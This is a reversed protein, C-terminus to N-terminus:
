ALSFYSYCCFKSVDGQACLSADPGTVSDQPPSGSVKVSGPSFCTKPVAFMKRCANSAANQSIYGLYDHTSNGGGWGEWGSASLLPTLPPPPPFLSLSLSLSLSLASLSLSLSLLSLSLSLSCILFYNRVRKTTWGLLHLKFIATHRVHKLVHCYFTCETWKCQKRFLTILFVPRIKSTVSALM